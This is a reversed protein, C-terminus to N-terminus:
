VCAVDCMLCLCPPCCLSRRISSPTCEYFALIRNRSWHEQYVHRKIVLKQRWQWGCWCFCRVLDWTVFQFWWRHLVNSHFAYNELPRSTRNSPFKASQGSSRPDYNENKQGDLTRRGFICSVCVRKILSIKTLRSSRSTGCLCCFKFSLVRLM